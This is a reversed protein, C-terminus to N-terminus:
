PTVTPRKWWGGNDDEVTWTEYPQPATITMSEKGPYWLYKTTLEKAVVPFGNADRDKTWEFIQGINQDEPSTYYNCSFGRLWKEHWIYWNGDIKIYDNAYKGYCWGGREYGLSTFTAKATKGDGAVVINPTAVPHIPPMDPRGTGFLKRNANYPHDPPPGGGALMAQIANPAKFDLKHIHTGAPLKGADYLEQLKQPALYSLKINEFGVYRSHTIELVSDDRKAFLMWALSEQSSHIAEYRAQLRMIAFVDECGSTRQELAKLSAELEKVRDELSGQSPEKSGSSAASAKAVPWLGISALAAASFSWFRRRSTNSQDTNLMEEASRAKQKRIERWDHADAHRQRERSM